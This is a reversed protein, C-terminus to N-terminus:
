MCATILYYKWLKFSEGLSSYSSKREFIIHKRLYFYVDHAEDNSDNGTEMSM